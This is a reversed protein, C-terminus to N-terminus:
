PPPRTRYTHGLRSIWRYRGDPERKVSWGAHKLRHDHRCLPDLNDEITLGGQAWPRRHDIDCQSAPMRCGPFTCYKKAATVRREQSAMPRRKTSGSWLVAGSDDTVTFNWRDSAQAAVAERAIDAVIPGWGPLEGPSDDLALLTTLDVQIDVTARAPSSPHGALLDLFVDARMQDATRQDEASKAARAMRNIRRMLANTTVPPLNLALVNATGDPNSETIVRRLEIGQEYRRQAASPDAEITLRQLRAGLQGTTLDNAIPLLEELIRSVPGAELSVLASILVRVKPVDIRGDSLARWVMPFREVTELALDLANEAARRTWSLASRIEDSAFEDIESDREPPSGAFGPPCHAIESMTLQSQAEYHSVQRREAQLLVVLEYGNLSARDVQALLTALHPGPGATRIDDPLVHRGAVHEAGWDEPLVTGAGVTREGEFMHEINGVRLSLNLVGTPTNWFFNRMVIFAPVLSSRM